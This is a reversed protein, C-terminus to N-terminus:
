FHGNEKIEHLFCGLVYAVALCSEAENGWIEKAVGPQSPFHLQKYPFIHVKKSLGGGWGRCIKNCPSIHFDNIANSALKIFIAVLSAFRSGFISYNTPSIGSMFM